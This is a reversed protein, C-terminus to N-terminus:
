VVQNVCYCGTADFPIVVGLNPYHTQKIFREVIGEGASCYIGTSYPGLYTLAGTGDIIAIAPTAPIFDAFLQGLDGQIDVDLNQYGSQRALQKVSHIHPAAVWQCTCDNTGFHIVTKQSDGHLKELAEVIRTEFDGVQSARYLNGTHDFVVLQSLSSWSLLGLIVSLWVALALWLKTKGTM